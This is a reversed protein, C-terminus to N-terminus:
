LNGSIDCHKVGGSKSTSTLVKGAKFFLKIVKPQTFLNDFTLSSTIKNHDLTKDETLPEFIKKFFLSKSM